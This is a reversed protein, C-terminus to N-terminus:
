YNAAQLVHQRLAAWQYFGPEIEAIPLSVEQENLLVKVWVDEDAENARYFIFQINCAMPFIRYNYWQNDFIESPHMKKGYGNIDLLCALPLVMTDHGYRLTAGPQPLAICSDAEEVIKRALFRQILPQHAGNLVNFGYDLFWGINDDQWLSYIEDKTFLDYFDLAGAVGPIACPNGNPPMNFTANACRFLKRYLEISDSQECEKSFLENFLRAPKLNEKDWEARYIRGEENKREAFLSDKENNMYWMDHESADHLITMTPNLRALELLANEMSIICRIIITSKADITVGDAFVEPFREYMRHAIGRHQEAGLASLEGLRGDSENKIKKITEYVREGKDTLANADHAAQLADLPISIDKPNILYRSGHRGYHSIYFPQKKDTTHIVSNKAQEVPYPCYNGAAM